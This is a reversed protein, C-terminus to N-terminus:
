VASKKENTLKSKPVIVKQEPYTETPKMLYKKTFNEVHYNPKHGANDMLEKLSVIYKMQKKVKTPAPPPATTM